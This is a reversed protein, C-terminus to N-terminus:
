ALSYGHALSGTQCAWARLHLLPTELQLGKLVREGGIFSGLAVTQFQGCTHTTGSHGLGPRERGMDSERTRSWENMDVIM